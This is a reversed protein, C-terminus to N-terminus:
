RAASAPRRHKERLRHLEDYIPLRRPTFPPQDGSFEIYPRDDTMLPAEGAFERLGDADLLLTALLEEASGFGLRALDDRVRLDRMRRAELTAADWEFPATAGILLGTGRVLWLQAHPFEELFARVIVRADEPTVLHFPLWQCVVGREALRARAARYYDRTYFNVMGAFKPPMPESTIVDYRERTAGVFNRGDEVWPRVRPDALVDHNAASFYKALRYPERSIDVIDLRDLRHLAAAGATSGTGFAIVLARQPAPHLLLPLHAMMPMYQSQREDAAAVFGNIYLFRARSPGHEYVAFTADPTERYDLLQMELEPLSLLPDGFPDPRALGRGGLWGALALAPVAALWARRKGSYLGLAVGAAANLAAVGVLSRTVGFLPILAFGAALAGAAAAVTNLLYLGGLAAGVTALRRGLAQAALPFVIGGLTAPLFVVAAVTLFRAAVTGGAGLKGAYYDNLFHLQGLLPMTALLAAAYFLEALALCGLLNQGSDAVSWRGALFSGLALAALVTALVATFTYTTSWLAQVLARTWLVELALASLGSLVAVAAIIKEETALGGAPGDASQVPASPAVRADLLLFAAALFLNLGVALHNTASLGLRGLLLFGAALCGVVAGLTNMGYLWAFDRGFREPARAAFRVLVPLTGGILTCPLLLILFSFLLRTAPLLWTRELATAYFAPYVAALAALVWPLALASLAIGAELRAYFRLPRPSRDARRGFRDAGVALGTMFATLVASVAFTTSGFVLALQRSWLIQYLLATAGSLLFLALLLRRAPM